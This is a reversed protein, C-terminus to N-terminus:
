IRPHWMFTKSMISKSIGYDIEKLYCINLYQLRLLIKGILSKLTSSTAGMIEMKRQLPGWILAYESLRPKYCRLNTIHGILKLNCNELHIVGMLLRTWSNLFRIIWSATQVCVIIGIMDVDHEKDKVHSNTHLDCRALYRTGRQHQWLGRFPFKPQQPQPFINLSGMYLILYTWTLYTTGLYPITIHDGNEYLVAYGMTLDM